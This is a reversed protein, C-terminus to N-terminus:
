KVLVKTARNGQRVIYIGPTLRDAAVRVGQLNYYEAPATSDSVAVTEVGSTGTITQAAPAPTVVEKADCPITYAQFASRGAILLNGAYDFTMQYAEGAKSPEFAYVETLPEAENSLNIDYVHIIDANDMVFLRKADASLAIAGDSGTLSLESSNFLVKDDYDAIIFSPVAANNNGAGRVQSLVMWDDAAIVDVNGNVMRASITPYTEDPVTTIQDANGIHYSVMTLSYDSPYDEQFTYLRTDDGTGRVSMGSTSGGLVSGDYKWEGSGSNITGAFFNHITEPQEPNIRYIGGHADGWDSVLVNDNPLIALRWPSAGVSTDWGKAAFSTSMELQPNFTYMARDSKSSYYITGFYDSEPNQNQVVGNGSQTADTYLASVGPVAKNEVVVQWNYTVGAEFDAVDVTVTVEEGAAYNGTAAVVTEQGEATLEVRAAADGSLRFSLKYTGDGAAETALAYAYVGAVVPQENGKTTYKRMMKGEAVYIDIDAGIVKDQNDTTVRTIGAAHTGQTAAAADRKITFANAAEAGDTVYVL